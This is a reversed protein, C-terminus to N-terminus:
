HTTKLYGLQVSPPRPQNQKLAERRAAARAAYQEMEERATLKKAAM